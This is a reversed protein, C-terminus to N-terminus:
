QGQSKQLVRLKASRARPNRDLEDAGAVVPKKTVPTAAPQKGCICIPFDPPCDCGRYQAAFFQKVIRDELSHFSIVALRGGENLMSFAALLGQELSQLEENVAIRLAQFTRRAPHGERRAAAPVAASIIEALRLTDEIPEREGAAKIARAIRGAFKEEGYTGIIHALAGADLSAILDAATLGTDGMRMDLPASEHYSFGRERCDLQHSSVGLDLLIGDAGSFGAASATGAMDRFNCKAVTVSERGAFRATLTAIAAPDRDLCLLRGEQNLSDAILASHGGGGATGDIYHGSPQIQM